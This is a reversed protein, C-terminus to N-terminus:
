DGAASRLQDLRARAGQVYPSASLAAKEDLLANARQWSAQLRQVQRAVASVANELDVHAQGTCSLFMYCYSAMVAPHGCCPYLRGKQESGVVGLRMDAHKAGRGM